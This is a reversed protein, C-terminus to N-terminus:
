PSIAFFFVFLFISSIGVQFCGRDLRLIVMFIIISSLLSVFIYITEATALPIYVVAIYSFLSGMVYNVSYLATAKINIWEIKPSKWKILFYLSWGCFPVFCRMANLEFPPIRDELAQVCIKSIAILFIFIFAAVIGVITTFVSQQEDNSPEAPNDKDINNDILHELETEM